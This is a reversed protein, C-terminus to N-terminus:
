REAIVRSKDPAIHPFARRADTVGTTDQASTPVVGSAGGIPSAIASTEDIPEALSPCGKILPCVKPARKLRAPESTVQM